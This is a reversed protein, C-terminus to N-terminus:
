LYYCIAFFYLSGYINYLTFYVLCRLQVPVWVPLPIVHTHTSPCKLQTRAVYFHLIGLNALPIQYIGTLQNSSLFFMNLNYINLVTSPIPGHNKAEFIEM